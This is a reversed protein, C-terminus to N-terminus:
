GLLRCLRVRSGRVRKKAHFLDIVEMYSFYQLARFYQTGDSGTGIKIAHM